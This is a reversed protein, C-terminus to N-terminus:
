IRGLVMRVLVEVPSLVRHAVEARWGPRALHALRPGHVNYFRRIQLHSAPWRSMLLSEFVRLRRLQRHGTRASRRSRSAATAVFCNQPPSTPLSRYVSGALLWATGLALGLPVLLVMLTWAVARDLSDGVETRRNQVHLLTLGHGVISLPAAVITALLPVALVSPAFMLSAGIVLIGVGIMLALFQWLRLRAAALDIGYVAAAAITGGGIGGMLQFFLPGGIDAPNGNALGISVLVTYIVGLVIGLLNGGVIWPNLSFRVPQVLLLTSCVMAYVLVPWMPWGASMTVILTWVALPEGNQWEVTAGGTTGPEANFLLGLAPYVAFFIPLLLRYLVAPRKPAATPTAYSLAAPEVLEVEVPEPALPEADREDM